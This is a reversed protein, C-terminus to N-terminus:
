SSSVDLRTLAPNARLTISQAGVSTLDNDRLLLTTLTTNVTLAKAISEAGADGMVNETLNLHRLTTNVELMEAIYKIEAPGMSCGQMELHILGTNVALASALCQVNNTTVYYAITLHQLTTNRKLGDALFEFGVKSLFSMRTVTTNRALDDGFNPDLQRVTLCTLSPDNDVFREYDSIAM